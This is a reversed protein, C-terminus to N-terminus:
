GSIDARRWLRASRSRRPRSGLTLATRSRQVSEGRRLPRQEECLRVRFQSAGQGAVRERRRRVRQGRGDGFSGQTQGGLGSLVPERGLVVELPRDGGRHSGGQGRRDRGFGAGAKGWHEPVETVGRRGHPLDVQGRGVQGAGGGSAQLHVPGEDHLALSAQVLRKADVLSREWGHAAQAVDGVLGGQQGVSCNEVGVAPLEGGGLAIEQAGLAEVGAETLLQLGGVDTVVEAEDCGPLAVDGFRQAAVVRGFPLPRRQADRRWLREDITAFRQQGDSQDCLGTPNPLQSGRHQIGGSEFGLKGLGAKEQGLGREQVAVAGFGPALCVQRVHGEAALVTEPPQRQGLVGREPGVEQILGQVRRPKSAGGQPSRRVEGICTPGGLGQVAADDGGLSGQFPAGHVLRGLM